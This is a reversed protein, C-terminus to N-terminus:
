VKEIPAFAVVLKKKGIDTALFAVEVWEGMGGGPSAGVVLGEGFTPHRVREGVTFKSPEPARSASPVFSKRTSSIGAPLTGASPADWETAARRAVSSSGYGSRTLLEAPIEDLFQSPTTTETRGHLTRQAAFTLVLTERARTLGVYCLRREEELEDGGAGEGWLARAHPLLGQEMGVLFVVPFELGKASHLTMLTVAEGSAGADQGGELASSELFLGLSSHRTVLSSDAYQADESEDSSMQLEDGAIRKDFDEAARLLEQVNALRDVSDLTKDRRLHELYDTREIVLSLLDAVSQTERADNQLTQMLARFPAIKNEVTKGLRTSSAEDLVTELLSLQSQNALIQLKEVTADGIARAPVNIIRSLTLDDNPNSLVKLYSILDKIEKREYFRQTGVLRLPLRARMFAEEFPRSQANVRCLLAFDANSGKRERQLIQIQRVVWAAEDQANSTGHVLIKEGGAFATWLKKPKRGLNKSIVGHAADLINQTSRYNQELRIVRADPYDLEFDLIIRVNAGRWAYISNHTVVGNAVFNRLNQVNLDYVCNGYEFEEVSVIEDEVIRGNEWVPVIMTPRLHSAPQFAFKNGTTLNAWRAVEIEDNATEDNATGINLIDNSRAVNRALHEAFQATRDMEAYSREVRWTERNGDRTEIGGKQLQLELVRDSTNLWARHRFWPSEKSPASGGFATFHVVVRAAKNASTLGSPRHHPHALDLNFDSMLTAARARTDIREFIADVQTQSIQMGSRGAVFFVTTPIGYQFAWLQEYFGAEARSACVRLVWMKDAGQPNAHVQLGNVLETRTGDKARSGDSRAGVAVGLRFGKDRRFMLYVYFADGRVGLRAFFMHNPTTELVRNGRTTVRLMAGRFPRARVSEIKATATTGRGAAGIIEDGARLDEVRTEGQPTQVLSGAAICQDDDGVVCINRHKQALLQAWKFQAANVDQFEDILVHLFRESWYSHAERSDRLLRVCECLLDDFDLASNERLREQYRKFLRAVTKDNPTNAGTAFEDPTQLRNKAESIRNLVRNPAFRESDVDAEKLIQRMLRASDDSDFIVFRPDIGILGGNIRLMQACMAHFTGMWIRHSAAGVIADLRARMEKSAKNTFTVALIRSPPVDQNQILHAIRHTLTRTKGSGAGAFILLPGDTHTVAAQQPENLGELLNM